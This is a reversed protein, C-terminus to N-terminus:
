DVMFRKHNAGGTQTVAQAAVDTTVATVIVALQQENTILITPDVYTTSPEQFFTPAFLVVLM